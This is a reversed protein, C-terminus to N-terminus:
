PVIPKELLATWNAGSDGTVEFGGPATTTTEVHDIASWGTPCSLLAPGETEVTETPDGNYGNLIFGTIQNRERGVTTVIGQITTTVTRSREQTQPGADRDCTWTHETEETSSVRFSVKAANDQLQKNNWGFTFQVDGKGVFGTGTAADFTVAASAGSELFQPAPATPENQCGVLAVAAFAMAM